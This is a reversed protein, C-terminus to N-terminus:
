KVGIVSVICKHITCLRSQCEIKMYMYIGDPMGETKDHHYVRINEVELDLM